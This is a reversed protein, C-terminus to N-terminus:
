LSVLLPRKKPSVTSVHPQQRGWNGGRGRNLILTVHTLQPLSVTAATSPPLKRPITTTCFSYRTTELTVLVSWYMWEENKLESLLQQKAKLAVIFIFIVNSKFSKFSDHIKHVDQTRHLNQDTEKGFSVIFPLKRGYRGYIQFPLSWQWFMFTMCSRLPLLQPTAQM